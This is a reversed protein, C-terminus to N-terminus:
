VESLTNRIQALEHHLAETYDLAAQIEFVTGSSVPKEAVTEPQPPSPNNGTIRIVDDRLRCIAEHLSNNQDNIRNRIGVLATAPETAATAGLAGSRRQSSAQGIQAQRDENM